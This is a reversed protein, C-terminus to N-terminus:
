KYSDQLTIIDSLKGKCTWYRPCLSILKNYFWSYTNTLREYLMFNEINNEDENRIRSFVTTLMKIYSM